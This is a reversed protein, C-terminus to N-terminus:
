QTVPVVSGGPSTIGAGSLRLGYCFWSGPNAAFNGNLIAAIAAPVGEHMVAFESNQGVFLADRLKLGEGQGEPGRWALTSNNVTTYGRLNMTPFEAQSLPRHLQQNSRYATVTVTYDLEARQVDTLLGESYGVFLSLEQFFFDANITQFNNQLLLNTRVANGTIAGVQASQPSANPNLSLTQIVGQPSVIVAAPQNTDSKYYLFFLTANLMGMKVVRAVNENIGRGMGAAKRKLATGAAGIRKRMNAMNRAMADVKGPLQSIQHRINPDIGAVQTLPTNVTLYGIGELQGRQEELEDAMSDLIDIVDADSLSELRGSRYNENQNFGTM